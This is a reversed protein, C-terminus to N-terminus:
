GSRQWRLQWQSNRWFRGHHDNTHLITLQYDTDPEYSPGMMACGSLLIATLGLSAPVLTKM